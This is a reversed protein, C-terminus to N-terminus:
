VGPLFRQIINLVIEVVSPIIHEHWKWQVIHHHYFSVALVTNCLSDPNPDNMHGGKPVCLRFPFM